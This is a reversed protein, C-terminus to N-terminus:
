YFKAMTTGLKVFKAKTFLNVWIKDAKESLGSACPSYIVKAGLEQGLHEMFKNMERSVGTGRWDKRVVYLMMDMELEEYYTHGCELSVLGILEKNVVDIAGLVFTQPKTLWGMIYSRCNEWSPTVKSNFATEKFYHNILLDLIHEIDNPGLRALQINKIDNKTM